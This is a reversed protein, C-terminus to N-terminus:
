FLDDVPEEPEPVSRGLLREHLLGQANFIIACLLDNESQFEYTTIPTQRELSAWLDILHRVLSSHYWVRPLGKKWNNSARVSGDAQVRHKTMYDGFRQLVIPSLFGRYDNKTLGEADRTAGSPAVRLGTASGPYGHPIYPEDPVIPDYACLDIADEPREKTKKFKMEKGKKYYCSWCIFAPENCGHIACRGKVVSV